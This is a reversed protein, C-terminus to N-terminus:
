WGDGTLESVDLGEAESMRALLKRHIMARDGGNAVVAFQSLCAAHMGCGVFNNMGKAGLFHTGALLSAANIVIGYASRGAMAKVEDDLLSWNDITYRKMAEDNAAQNCQFEEDSTIGWENDLWNGSNDKLGLHQLAILTM